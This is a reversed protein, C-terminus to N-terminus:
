RPNKPTKSLIDVVIRRRESLYNRLYEWSAEQQEATIEPATSAASEGTPATLKDLFLKMPERYEDLLSNFELMYSEKEGFAVGNALNQLVKAALILGRRANDPPPKSVVGYQSPMVLAPCLLRLFMFCGLAHLACDIRQAFHAEVEKKLCFCLYRMQVPVSHESKFIHQLFAICLEKLARSNAKRGQLRNPDIEYSRRDNGVQVILPRLTRILYYKSLNRIHASTIRNWVNDERFVGVEPGSAARAASHVERSIAWRVLQDSHGCHEFVQVLSTALQDATNV